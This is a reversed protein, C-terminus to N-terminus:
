AMFSSLRVNGDFGVSLLADGECAVRTVRDLHLGELAGAVRRQRLCLVYTNADFCGAALYRGDHRLAMGAIPDGGDLLEFPTILAVQRGARADWLRVSGDTSGSLLAHLSGRELPEVVWVWGSHGEMRTVVQQREVDWTKVLTDNGGSALHDMSSGLAVGCVARSHSSLVPDAPSQQGDELSAAPALLAPEPPAGGGGGDLGPPLRWLKVSGDFSATAVWDGDCRVAPCASAHGELTAALRADWTDLRELGPRESGQELPGREAGRETQGRGVARGRRQGRPGLEYVHVDPGFGGVVLQRTGPRQRADFAGRLGDREDQPELPFRPLLHRASQLGGRGHRWLELEAREAQGAHAGASIAFGPPFPDQLFGAAFVPGSHCRPPASSTAPRGAAWRREAGVRQRFAARWDTSRADLCEAWLPFEQRFPLRWVGSEAALGRWRRCVRQAHALGARDLQSFITSLAADDLHDLTPPTADGDAPPARVQAGPASRAGPQAFAM